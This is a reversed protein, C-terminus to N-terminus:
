SQKALWVWLYGGDINSIAFGDMELYEGPFEFPVGAYDEYDAAAAAAKVNWFANGNGDTVALDDGATAAYFVMKAIRIPTGAAVVTDAEDLIWPNAVTSNSM